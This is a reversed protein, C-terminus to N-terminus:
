VDDWQAQTIARPKTCGEKKMQKIIYAGALAQVTTSSYTGSQVKALWDDADLGWRQCRTFPGVQREQDTGTSLTVYEPNVPDEKSLGAASTVALVVDAVGGGAAVPLGKVFQVVNEGQDKLYEQFEDKFVYALAAISGVLVIPIGIALPVGLGDLPGKDHKAKYYRKLAKTQAANLKKFTVGDPMLELGM